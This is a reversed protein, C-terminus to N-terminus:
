NNLFSSNSPCYELSFHNYFICKHNSDNNIYNLLAKFYNIFSYKNFQQYNCDRIQVNINQHLNYYQNLSFHGAAPYYAGSFNYFNYYKLHKSLSFVSYFSKPVNVAFKHSLKLLTCNQYFNQITCNLKFYNKYIDDILYDNNFTYKPILEYDYEFFYFLTNNCVLKQFHNISEKFQIYYDRENLIIFQTQYTFGFFLYLFVWIM